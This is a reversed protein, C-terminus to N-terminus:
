ASPIINNAGGDSGTAVPPTTGSAAQDGRLEIRFPVPGIRFDSISGGSGDTRVARQLLAAPRLDIQARLENGQRSLPMKGGFLERLLVRAKAADNPMGVLGAAIQRRCLDAARPLASIVRDSM